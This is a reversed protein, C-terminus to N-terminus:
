QKALSDRFVTFQKLLRRYRRQVYLDDPMFVAIEKLFSVTRNLLDQLKAIEEWSSLVPDAM